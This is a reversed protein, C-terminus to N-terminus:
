TKVVNQVVETRRKVFPRLSIKRWTGLNERALRFIRYFGNQGLRKTIELGKERILVLCHYKVLGLLAFIKLFTKTQCKLFKAM